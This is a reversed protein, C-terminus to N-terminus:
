LKKFTGKMVYCSSECEINVSYEYLLAPELCTEKNEAIIHFKCYLINEARYLFKHIFERNVYTDFILAFIHGNFVFLFKVMLKNFDHDFCIYTSM